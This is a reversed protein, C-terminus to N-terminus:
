YQPVMPRVRAANAQTPHGIGSQRFEQAKSNRTKLRPSRCGQLLFTLAQAQGLHFFVNLFSQGKVPKRSFVVFMKLAGIHELPDILLEFAAGMDDSDKRILLAAQPENTRQRDFDVLIPDFGVAVQIHFHKAFLTLLKM